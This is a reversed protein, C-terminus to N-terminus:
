EVILEIRYRLQENIKFSYKLSNTELVVSDLNRFLLENLESYDKVNAETAIYIAYKGKPINTIDISADFWAKDKSLNDGLTTGVEYLGDSISGLNYEYKEFTSVNEFIMTRKISSKKNLDMGISYSTGMIHLKENEFNLTRYQNYQNYVSNTTKDAIKENRIILELALEEDLYNNRTTVTNESTYTAAQARLVKNSIITKSYYEDTESMIYVRYDGSPLDDIKLEGKYWSYTYDKNDESYVPRSIESKDTIRTLEQVIEENTSINQYIIKYVIERNLNNDIGKISNYGKIQLKGDIEKLYDLFFAADKQILEIEDVTITITKEVTHNYSDTVQYTIEYTGKEETKVTNKIVKIDKTIDGDEKDIATVGSLEDYNRNIGITRNTANIVPAEDAIVTITITKETSVKSNDTVKYTVKYTGPTDIEVENLVVGIKDTLIGDEADTATVGELENFKQGQIITRDKANIVPASNSTKYEYKTIKVNPDSELTWGYVNNSGSLNVPVKYWIRGDVIKEELIPTYTYHFLGGIHTGFHDITTPNVITYANQGPVTVSAQGYASSVFRISDASVWHKQDYQYDSTVLYAVPNKDKDYATTYVMVYRNNLLTQGKKSSLTPDYYYATDKISVAVKPKLTANEIYLDYTYYKDQHEPVDNPSIYGNKGTNTKLVHAAPVYVYSNWNYYGSTLQNFNSDINMDSVVKYWTTNGNVSSGQVEGIIVLGNDSSPYTYVTKANSNPSSKADTAHRTIATQYFNYDQLGFSKDLFYYNSAMKEGWYVDSAYKVNMGVYKNGNQAGFYRWDTPESYGYTVWANAYDYISQSFTAFWNAAETPNSDVANLGFGNNKNIALNSTGNGTENRSVGFALLANAGYLEQANYFFAGKGYLRSTAIGELSSNDNGYVDRGYGMSNRVYEDINISSYTTRTHQPLFQYYNYYPQTSNISNAYTYNKYDKLMKYRDTYFYHGDYSYYTGPSLMDPKPGITVGSSGSYTNQIKTVFNHRITSDTITYSSSSKVWVLPVIEIIGSRVWGTYGGIKIKTTFTNAYSSYGVDLLAGDVAGYGSAGYMYTHATRIEHDTYIDFTTEPHTFDVLGANVDLIQTQGNIRLLVGMDPNESQNIYAKAEEYTETCKIYEISGDAKFIAVEFPTCVNRNIYDDRSYAYTDKISFLLCFLIAILFLRKNM